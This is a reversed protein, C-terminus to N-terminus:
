RADTKSLHRDSRYAAAVVDDPGFLSEFQKLAALRTKEGFDPRQLIRIGYDAIEQCVWDYRYYTIVEIDLSASGYGGFFLSEERERVVGEGSNTVFMLDREKPALLSQEWDIFFIRGDRALMLNDIHIDGHCIILCHERARLSQGLQGLRVVLARIQELREQWALALNGEVTDRGFKSGLVMSELEKVPGLGWSHFDEEPVTECLQEPVPVDHIKRLIGGFLSWQGDTLGHTMGTQGELFPYVLLAFEGISTWFEGYCNPIPSLVQQIGAKRLVQTVEIGSEPIDGHVLKLFLTSQDATNICYCWRNPDNGLPLFDIGIVSHDYHCQLSAILKADEIKPKELL